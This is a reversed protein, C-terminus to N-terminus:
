KVSAIAILSLGIRNQFLKDVGRNLPMLKEYTKILSQNLLKGNLIKGWLGWGLLGMANFSHIQEAQFGADNLEQLLMKRNYRRHHGLERDLRCYLWRYAPVLLIIKGNPALKSRLGKLAKQPDPIHELVNILLITQYIKNDPKLPQDLDLTEIGALHAHSGFQQKLRELYAPDIDSATLQINKQLLCATLNGIGSGIELVSGLLASEFQEVVWQNFAPALHLNQLTQYGTPDNM